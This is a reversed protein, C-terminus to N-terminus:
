AIVVHWHNGTAHGSRKGGGAEDENIAELIEYGDAKITEIFEDFTMGPIPRLDVAGDSQVHWSDPNKRGLDSNPDRIDDTVEAEPFLSEIVSRGYPLEPDLEPPTDEEPLAEDVPAPEDMTAAEAPPIVVPDTMGNVDVTGAQAGIVISKRMDSLFQKANEGARSLLGIARNTTAPDQSFLMDVIARAKSDPMRTLTTLRTLAFLKTTPMSAPNLALLMRGLDETSATDAAKRSETGVSALNRLSREQASAAGVIDRAAADGLNGALAAQTKGSGAVDGLARNVDRPTGAFDQGLRNAQGLFRGTAGEPTDYANRVEQVDAIPATERTRTLGGEQLGEIMRANAAHAARMREIQQAAQPAREELMNFLHPIARQAAGYGDQTPKKKSLNTLIGAVDNATLGAIDASMDDPSRRLRLSGAANRIAAAMEPDSVVEQIDGNPQLEPTVPMLSAVDDAVEMERVPAMINADIEQQFDKLPLPGRTAGTANAVDGAVPAGRSAELDRAMQAIINQRRAGTATATRAAMEPGTNAVRSQVLGAARESVAPSRGVVEQAIKNRDALPMIEYLTPEAGTAARYDDAARQMDDASATTFRKLIKGASPLGLLDGVPRLLFGAAKGLGMLAPAALGGIAVGTGIDSGEGAAQAGGGAAGAGSIALAKSTKPAAAAFQAAVNGVRTGQTLLGIGKAVGGGIAGGSIIQGLINGVVSKDLEADTNARVQDLADTGTVGEPKDVLAAALREPVGFAGRRLGANLSTLFNGTTSAKRDAQEKASRDIREGRNNAARKTSVPTASAARLEATKQFYQDRALQKFKEPLRAIRRELDASGKDLGRQAAPATLTGQKRPKPAGFKAAMASQMVNTATGDPFEVVTGDPGEVEIPM